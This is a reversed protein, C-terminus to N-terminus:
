RNVKLTLSYYLEKGPAPAKLTLRNTGAHLTNGPLQISVTDVDAANAGARSDSAPQTLQVQRDNITITPRGPQLELQEASAYLSLAWVADATSGHEAWGLGQRSEMLARAYSQAASKYIAADRRTMLAPAPSGEEAFSSGASLTLELMPALAARDLHEQAQMLRNALVLADGAHGEQWLALALWAQGAHSLKLSCNAGAYAMMSRAQEL